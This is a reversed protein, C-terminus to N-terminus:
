IEIEFGMCDILLSVFALFFMQWFRKYIAVRDENGRSTREGLTYISTNVARTAWKRRRQRGSRRRRRRYLTSGSRLIIAPSSLCVGLSASKGWEASNNGSWCGAESFSKTNVVLDRLCFCYTDNIRPLMISLAQSLCFITLDALIKRDLM